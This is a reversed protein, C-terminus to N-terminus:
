FISVNTQSDEIKVAGNFAASDLKKLPGDLKTATALYEAKQEM